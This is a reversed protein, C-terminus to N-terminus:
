GYANADTDLHTHGYTDSHINGYCYAHMHANAYKYGHTGLSDPHRRGGVASCGPYCRRGTHTRAPRWM